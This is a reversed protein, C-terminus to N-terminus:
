FIREKWLFKGFDMMRELPATDFLDFATNVSKEIAIDTKEFNPSNDKMWFRLLFLTQAWIGESFITGNRKLIKHRQTEMDEQILEKAFEKMNKRLVKLQRLNQMTEGKETLVCLVYSRNVSLNEFFTFFFLLSKERSSYTEWKEDKEVLSLSRQFFENWVEDRLAEFSGFHAYFEAESFKNDKSFKYISKPAQGNELIYDMYREMLKEKSVIKKSRSKNTKPETEM